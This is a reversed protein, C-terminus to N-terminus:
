CLLTPKWGAWDAAQASFSGLTATNIGPSNATNNANIFNYAIIAKAVETLNRFIKQPSTEAPGIEGAKEM